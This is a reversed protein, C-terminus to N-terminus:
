ELGRALNNEIREMTQLMALQLLLSARAMDGIALAHRLKDRLVQRLPLDRNEADPDDFSFAIQQCDQSPRPETM